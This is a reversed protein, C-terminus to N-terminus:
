TGPRPYLRNLVQFDDSSPRVSWGAGVTGSRMCSNTSSNHELGLAHGLEHCTTKRRQTADGLLRSNLEV